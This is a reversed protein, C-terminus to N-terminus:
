PMSAAACDTVYMVGDVIVAHDPKSVGDIIGYPIAMAAHANEVNSPNIQDM